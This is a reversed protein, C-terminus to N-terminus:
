ALDGAEEIWNEVNASRASEGLVKQLKEPNSQALQAFTYYGAENLQSQRMPGIGTIVTLDDPIVEEATGAEEAELSEAEEEAELSEAEEEAEDEDEQRQPEEVARPEEKDVARVRTDVIVKPEAPLPGSWAQRAGAIDDAVEQLLGLVTKKREAIESRREEYSDQAEQKRQAENANLTERQESAMKEHADRIGEMMEVVSNELDSIFTALDDRSKWAMEAHNSRFEAMTKGLNRIREEIEARRGEYGNQAMDKLDSVFASLGEKMTSAMESHNNHFDAMKEEVNRVREAIGSRRDEYDDRAEQKRQAENADLTERQESAMKEHADRIGDMMDIVSNELDMVFTMLDDRSKRAMEAHDENFGAKMDTVDAKLDDIFAGRMNRLADVEGRLRTMDDTLRGM